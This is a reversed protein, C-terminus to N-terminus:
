FVRPIYLVAGPAVIEAQLRNVALLETLQVRYVEAIQELTEGAQLIRYKLTYRTEGAPINLTKWFWEAASMQVEQEPVANYSAQPASSKSPEFRSDVELAEKVESSDLPSDASNVEPFPPDARMDFHEPVRELSASIASVSEAAVSEEAIPSEADGHFARDAGQLQLQWNEGAMSDAPAQEKDTELDGFSSGWESPQAPLEISQAGCNASVGGEASLGEVVLLAEFHLWGPGLIELDMEPVHVKVNLMGDPQGFVPVAIDFPMRYEVHEVREQEGGQVDRELYAAMLINGELYYLNGRKEFSTVETYASFQDIRENGYVENVFVQQDLFLDFM